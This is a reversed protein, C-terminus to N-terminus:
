EAALHTPPPLTPPQKRRKAWITLTVGITVLCFAIFEAQTVRFSGLTFLTTNVRILEITFREVGNLILYCGFLVGPILFRKRIKWFLFFLGICIIAEYLPTPFVPDILRIGNMLDTFQIEAYQPDLDNPVVTGNVNNPYDYAWAWDPAWSLWGPKPATNVIGWDGDGSIHCGLRGVGYALFLGPACADMVHLINMGKKNAYVLVAISGMILGGYMTLGAFSFIMDGPNELFSGFNELIHFIKAGMFGFLAAILTMTGVHEASTIEIEKEEAKKKTRNTNIWYYYGYMLGAGIIGFILSGQGSLIWGRPNESFVAYDTFSGILKWGLLFGIASQTLMENQTYPMGEMVKKRSLPLLGERSKRKLEWSFVMACLLFAIAVFFGFSQLLKLHIIELGFLDKVADYITAYM